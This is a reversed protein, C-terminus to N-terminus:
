LCTRPHPRPKHHGLNKVENLLCIILWILVALEITVITLLISVAIIM